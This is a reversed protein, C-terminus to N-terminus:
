VRLLLTPRSLTCVKKQNTIPDIRCIGNDQTGLIVTGGPEEFASIYNEYSIIGDEQEHMYFLQDIFTRRMSILGFGATAYLTEIEQSYGVRSTMAAIM